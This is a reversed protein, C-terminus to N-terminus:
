GPWRRPAIGDDTTLAAGQGGTSNEDFGSILKYRGDWIMRWQNLGSRVCERHSRTRAELLPRLSRSDMNKRGPVNKTHQANVLYM